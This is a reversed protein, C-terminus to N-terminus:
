GRAVHGKSFVHLAESAKGPTTNFEGPRKSSPMAFGARRISLTVGPSEARAMGALERLVGKVSARLGAINYGGELTRVM